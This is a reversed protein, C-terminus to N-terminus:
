GITIEYSSSLVEAYCYQSLILFHRLRLRHTPDLLSQNGELWASPNIEYLGPDPHNGTSRWTEITNKNLSKPDIIYNDYQSEQFNLSTCKVIGVVSFSIISKTHGENETFQYYSQTDIHIELDDEGTYIVKLDLSSIRFPLPQPILTVM